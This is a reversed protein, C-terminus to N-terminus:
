KRYGSEELIKDIEEKLDPFKAIVTDYDLKGQIIQNALYKAM